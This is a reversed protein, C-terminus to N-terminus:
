GFFDAVSYEFDYNRGRESGISDHWKLSFVVAFARPRLLVRMLVILRRSHLRQGCRKTGRESALEKSDKESLLGDSKFTRTFQAPVQLVILGEEVVDAVDLHM